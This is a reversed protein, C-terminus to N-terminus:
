SLLWDIINVQKIGNHYFGNGIEDLTLLYKPFHDRIMNLPELERRLVNEDLVTAAVQYYNVGDGANTAVFDVEKEGVKGINVERSSWILLWRM